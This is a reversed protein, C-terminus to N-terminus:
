EHDPAEKDTPPEDPLHACPDCIAIVSGGAPRGNATWVFPLAHVAPAGCRHCIEAPHASRADGM